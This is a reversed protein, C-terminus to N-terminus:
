DNWDVEVRFLNHLCSECIHEKGDTSYVEDYDLDFVHGCLDCSTVREDHYNRCHSGQCRECGVCHNEYHISM